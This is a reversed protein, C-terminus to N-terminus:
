VYEKQTEMDIKAEVLEDAMGSDSELKHLKGASDDGSAINGEDNNIAKKFDKLASGLDGGLNRLKKTGFLMLVIAMIILLQWISIGGIGM